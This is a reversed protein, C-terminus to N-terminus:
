RYSNKNMKIEIKALLDHLFSETRSNEQEVKHTRELLKKKRLFFFFFNTVVKFKLSFRNESLVM